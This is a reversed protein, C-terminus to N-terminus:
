SSQNMKQLMASLTPEAWSYDSLYEGVFLSTNGALYDYYDCTFKETNVRIKGYQSEVIDPLDAKELTQRLRHLITRCYNKASQEEMYEFLNFTIRDLEVWNGRYHVLLALLEKSKKSPFILPIGNVLCDFQPFCRMHPLDKKVSYHIRIARELVSCIQESEYPKLIYGAAPVSWADLAYKPFATVFIIEPPTSSLEMVQNALNLGNIAPMEIDLFLIDATNDRFFALAESSSTFSLIEDKTKDVPPCEEKLLITLLNVAREEDDVIVIRM